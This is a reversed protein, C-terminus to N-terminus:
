NWQGLSRGSSFILEDKKTKASKKGVRLISRKIMFLWLLLRLTLVSIWCREMKGQGSIRRRALEEGRKECRRTLCRPGQPCSDEYGFTVSFCKSLRPCRIARSQDKAHRGSSLAAAAAATTTMVLTSGGGGGGLRGRADATSRGKQRHRGARRYDHHHHYYSKQVILSGTLHLSTFPAASM